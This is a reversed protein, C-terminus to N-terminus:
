EHGGIHHVGKQQAEVFDGGAVSTPKGVSDCAELAVGALDGGTQVFGFEGPGVAGEQPECQLVGRSLAKTVFGSDGSCQTSEGQGCGVDKFGFGSHSGFEELGESLGAVMGVDITRLLILECLQELLGSFLALADHRGEGLPCGATWPGHFLLQGGEQLFLFSLDEAMKNVLTGGRTVIFNFM